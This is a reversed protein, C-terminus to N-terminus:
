DAGGTYSSTHSPGRLPALIVKEKKLCSRGPKALAVVRCALRRQQKAGARLINHIMIRNRGERISPLFNLGTLAPFSVRFGWEYVEIYRSDQTYNVGEFLSSVKKGKMQFPLIFIRYIM